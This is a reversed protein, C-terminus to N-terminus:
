DPFYRDSVGVIIDDVPATSSGRSIMGLSIAGEGFIARLQRATELIRIDAGINGAGAYGVLLLKLPGGGVLGVQRDAHSELIVAAMDERMAAEQDEALLLRAFTTDM